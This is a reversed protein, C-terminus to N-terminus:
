EDEDDDLVARRKKSKPMSNSRSAAGEDDPEGEADEEGDENEVVDAAKRKEGREGGSKGRDDIEEEVEEEEDDDNDDEVVEEEEDSGAVFDDVEYDDNAFNGRRRGMDEDSDYEDNRGRRPRSARSVKKAARNTNEGDDEDDNELDDATLGGGGGGGYRRMTTVPQKYGRGGDRLEAADRRKQARQKEKEALEAKKRGLEPDEGVPLIEIASSNTSTNKGRVAAALSSQLRELADDTTKQSPLISLGSTIKHTVRLLGATEHPVTLYTYTEATTFPKSSTPTPIRPKRQPPALANGDIEYQQLPDSGLQLSFSGDSWRLIRANSQMEKPNSPSYRWRITSMATNYASFDPSPEERSHLEKTPIAFLDQDFMIPEIALFKPM